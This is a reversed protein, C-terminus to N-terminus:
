KSVPLGNGTWAELGGRYWFTTWGLTASRLAANYSSRDNMGKGFFVVGVSRDGGAKENLWEDLAEQLSDTVSGDRGADPLSFANQMTEQLGSTDVFLTKRGNAIIKAVEVTTIITARAHKNPTPGTYPSQFLVMSAAVGDDRLEDVVAGAAGGSAPASANTPQQGASDAPASGTEVDSIMVALHEFLDYCMTISGEKPDYWANLQDCDRFTVTLPRPLVYTQSLNDFYGTLASSLKSAYFDGVRRSSPQFVTKIAAGAANAPQEGEPHWEGSRTHPALIKRWARNQKNFEDSCRFRTREDLKVGDAISSFVKPNGGYMICLMNRFRKLDATHEDQWPSPSSGKMENIKGSYYWQLAAYSASGIAMDDIEKDGSPYMTPEVIQLASYIDVADEEPGTSPLQLEGILAHGFEHAFISRVLGYYVAAIRGSDGGFEPLPGSPAGSGAVPQPANGGNQPATQAGTDATQPAGGTQQSPTVPQTPVNQGDSTINFDTIAFVGTDYAMIGIQAGLAASGQVDGIMRGNLLFRTVGPVDVMEIVDTGDLKAANPITAIDQRKGNEMCFLKASKDAIVEMLCIASNAPNTAILGLSAGPKSSNIAIRVSTARGEAPAPGAQVVLTQETGGAQQNNLVFWGDQKTGTWGQIIQSSGASALPGLEREFEAHAPLNSAIFSAILVAGLLRM